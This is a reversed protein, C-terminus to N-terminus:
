RTVIDKRIDFVFAVNSLKLNDVIVARALNDDLQNSAEVLASDDRRAEVDLLFINLAPDVVEQWRTLEAVNHQGCRSADHVVLLCTALLSSALNQSEEVLDDTESRILRSNHFECYVM